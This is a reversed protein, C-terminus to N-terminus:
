RILDPSAHPTVAVPMTIRALAVGEDLTASRLYTTVESGPPGPEGGGLRDSSVSRFRAPGPVARIPV